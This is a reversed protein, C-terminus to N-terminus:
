QLFLNTWTWVFTINLLRVNDAGPLKALADGLQKMSSTSAPCM